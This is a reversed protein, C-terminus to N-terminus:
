SLHMRPLLLPHWSFPYLLVKNDYCGALAIPHKATSDDLLALCGCPVGALKAARVQMGRLVCEEVDRLAARLRM